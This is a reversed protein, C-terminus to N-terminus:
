TILSLPLWIQPEASPFAFDPAMVGIVEFPQGDLRIVRGVVNSDGGLTTRWFRDSLVVVQNAGAVDDTLGFTRGRAASVGLTGFLRGDAMVASVNQPEGVGTLNRTGLGPMYFYASMASFTNAADRVDDFDQPSFGGFVAGRNPRTHGVQVLEDPREFPLERLLVARVVTFMATSAGIGLALTALAVFTFGPTRALGRVALRVGALRSSM